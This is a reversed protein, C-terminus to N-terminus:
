EVPTPNILEDLIAEAETAAKSDPAIEIVEELLDVARDSRGARLYQRALQVAQDPEFRKPPIPNRVRQRKQATVRAEAVDIRQGDVLPLEWEVRKDRVGLVLRREKILDKMQRLADDQDDEVANAKRKLIRVQTYREEWERQVDRLEDQLYFIRERIQRRTRSDEADDVDDQWYRVEERLKALREREADTLSSEDELRRIAGRNSSIKERLQAVSWYKGVLRMEAAYLDHKLARMEADIVYLREAETFIREDLEDLTTALEAVLNEIEQVQKDYGVMVERVFEHTGAFDPSDLWTQLNLVAARQADEPIFPLKDQYEYWAVLAGANHMVGPDAPLLEAARMAAPFAKPLFGREAEFYALVAWAMGHEDTYKLLRRAAYVANQIRGFRLMQRMYADNVEQDDRDLRMAEMLLDDAQHASEAHEIAEALRALEATIEEESLQDSIAASDAVTAEIAVDAPQTAPGDAIAACVFVWGILMGLVWKM